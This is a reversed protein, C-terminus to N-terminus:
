ITLKGDHGAEKIKWVKAAPDWEKVEVAAEEALYIYEAAYKGGDNTMCEEKVSRRHVNDVFIM